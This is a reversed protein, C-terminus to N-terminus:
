KEEDLIILPKDEEEAQEKAARYAQSDHAQERTISVVAGNGNGHAMVPPVFQEFARAFTESERWEGLLDRITM